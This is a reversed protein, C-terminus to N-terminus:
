ESHPHAPEPGVMSCLGTPGTDWGLGQGLQWHTSEEKFSLRELRYVSPELSGPKLPRCLAEAGECYLSSLPKQASPTPTGLTGARLDELLSEDKVNELWRSYEAFADM